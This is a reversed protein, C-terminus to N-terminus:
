KMYCFIECGMRYGYGMANNSIGNRIDTGKHVEGIYLM